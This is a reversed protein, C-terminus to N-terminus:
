CDSRQEARECYRSRMQKWGKEGVLWRRMPHQPLYRRRKVVLCTLITHAHKLFPHSYCCCLKTAMLFIYIHIYIYLIPPSGSLPLGDHQGGM